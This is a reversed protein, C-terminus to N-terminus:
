YPDVISIRHLAVKVMKWHTISIKLKNHYGVLLSWGRLKYAIVLMQSSFKRLLDRQSLWRQFLAAPPIRMKIKETVQVLVQM